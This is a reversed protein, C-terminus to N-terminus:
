NLDETWGSPPPRVQMPAAREQRTAGSFREEHHRLEAGFTEDTFINNNTAVSLHPTASVGIYHVM